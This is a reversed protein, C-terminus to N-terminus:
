NRQSHREILRQKVHAGYEYLGSAVNTALPLALVLFNPYGKRAIYWYGIGEAVTLGLGTLTGFIGGYQNVDPRAVVSPGHCGSGQYHGTCFFENHKWASGRWKQAWELSPLRHASPMMYPFILVELGDHVFGKTFEKVNQYLYSLDDSIEESMLSTSERVSSAYEPLRQGFKQVSKKTSDRKIKISNSVQRGLKRTSGSIDSAMESVIDKLTPKYESM